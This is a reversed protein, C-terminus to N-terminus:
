FELLCLTYRIKRNAKGGAAVGETEVELRKQKFRPFAFEVDVAGSELRPPTGEIM